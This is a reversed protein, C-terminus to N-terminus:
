VGGTKAPVPWRHYSVHTCSNATDTIVLKPAPVAVPSALSGEVLEGLCHGNLTGPAFCIHGADHQVRACHVGVERGWKLLHARSLGARHLM